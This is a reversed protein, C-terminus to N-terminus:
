CNDLRDFYDVTLFSGVTLVIDGLLLFLMGSGTYGSIPGGWNFTSFEGGIKIVILTFLGTLIIFVKAIVSRGYNGIILPILILFINLYFIGSVLGYNITDITHYEDLPTPDLRSDITIPLFWAIGILIFGLSVVIQHPKFNEFM